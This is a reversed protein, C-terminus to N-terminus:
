LLFPLGPVLLQLVLSWSNLCAPKHQAKVSALTTLLLVDLRPRLLASVLKLAPRFRQPPLPAVILSLLEPVLQPLAATVVVVVVKAQAELRPQALVAAEEPAVEQVAAQVVVAPALVELLPLMLVHASLAQERSSRPFPLVLALLLLVLFLFSLSRHSLLLSANVLMILLMAVSVLPWRALAPMHASQSQLPLSLDATLPVPARAHQLQSLLQPRLVALYLKRLLGPRPSRLPEAVVVAAAIVVPEEQAQLAVMVARAQLSAAEERPPLAVVEEPAQLAATEERPQLATTPQPPPLALACQALVRSLLM